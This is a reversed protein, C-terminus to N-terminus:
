HFSTLTKSSSSLLFLSFLLLESHVCLHKKTTKWQSPVISKLSEVGGSPMKGAKSQTIAYKTATSKQSM